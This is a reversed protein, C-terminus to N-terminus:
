WVQEQKTVIHQNWTPPLFSLFIYLSYQSLVNELPRFKLRENTLATIRICRNTGVAADADSSEGILSQFESRKFIHQGLITQVNEKTKQGGGPVLVDDCFLFLYPSLCCRM